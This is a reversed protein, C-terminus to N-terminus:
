REFLTNVRPLTQEDVESLPIIHLQIPILNQDYLLADAAEYVRQADDLVESRLFVWLHYTIGDGSYAVRQVSGLAQVSNLFRLVADVSASAQQTGPQSRPDPATLTTM